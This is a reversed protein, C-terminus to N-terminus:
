SWSEPNNLNVSLSACLYLEFAIAATLIYAYFLTMNVM